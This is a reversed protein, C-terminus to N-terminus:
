NELINEPLNYFIISRLLYLLVLIRRLLEWLFLSCRLQGSLDLGLTTFHAGIRNAGTKFLNEFSYKNIYTYTDAPELPRLKKLIVFMGKRLLKALNTPLLFEDIINGEM